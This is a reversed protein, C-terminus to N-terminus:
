RSPRRGPKGWDDSPYASAAGAWATRFQDPGVDFREKAEAKYDAKSKTPPGSKREEILWQRCATVSRAKARRQTEAPIKNLWQMLSSREVHVDRWWMWQQEARRLEVYREMPVAGLDIGIAGDEDALALPQDFETPPIPRRGGTLPTGFLKVKDAGAVACLTRFARERHAMCMLADQHEPPNPTGFALFNLVSMLPLRLTQPLDSFSLTNPPAWENLRYKPNLGQTLKSYDVRPQTRDYITM